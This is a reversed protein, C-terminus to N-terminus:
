EESPGVPMWGSRTRAFVGADDPDIRYLFLWENEILERVTAHKAIIGDIAAAPAELYVGLRLPEHVWDAGDHVSQKALGIRLDGGAGEYVGLTGGVVNHLVKDGSGYHLPDVTSAYYQLNIWNAVIMPATMITELTAFGADQRYEYEHLFARGDLNLARTRARPAAIFAANRALGWEPRVESWDAARARLADALTRPDAIDLGLRPAREARARRGARAFAARLEALDDGHTAVLQPEPYLVVDDTCTDHVGGVFRTTEPIVIGQAGLEACVARDNLLAALARANVEGSQGGCAGCALGAAQPNNPLRVGHGIFAVLRAFGETLSMGRLAQAALAARASVDLPTGDTRRTLEPRLSADPRDLGARWVDGRTEEPAFSAEVLSFISGLGMTEVYGFTGPVSDEARARHAKASREAHVREAEGNRAAGRDEAIVSAALLGPLQPRLDGSLSGYALPLGFFGAFGLTVVGADDAEIARRMVESRVDICFVVQAQIPALAAAGSRLPVPSAVAALARALGDHYRLEVARQLLWDIRQQERVAAARPQWARRAHTWQVALDTGTATRYLLLEWALRVALLEVITSDDNGALRAEWRRHACAAAWGGVDMLLATLYPERAEGTLNLTDLATAILALPSDPLEDVGEAVGHEGLLLRPAADHRAVVRWHAYLGASRDVGWPAQGADLYSECTRGIQDIALASWTHQLSSGHALDRPDTVLPHKPLPEADMRLADWVDVLTVQEPHRAAAYRVDSVGLRGRDWQARYWARPMLLASGSLAGIRAAAETIPQEVWGWYPNVAIMRDLPWAPAIRACASEIIRALEADVVITPQATIPLTM